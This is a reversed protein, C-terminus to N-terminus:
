LRVILRKMQPMRLCHPTKLLLRLVRSFGLLISFLKLSARIPVFRTNNQFMHVYKWIVFKWTWLCLVTDTVQPCLTHWENYIKSHWYGSILRFCTVLQYSEIKAETCSLFPNAELKLILHLIQGCIEGNKTM